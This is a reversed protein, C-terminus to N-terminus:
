RLIKAATADMAAIADRVVREQDDDIRDDMELVSRAKAADADAYSDLALKLLRRAADAVDQLKPPIPHAPKESLRLASKAINRSLDGVRELDTAM